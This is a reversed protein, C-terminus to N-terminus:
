ERIWTTLDTCDDSRLKLLQLLNGELDDQGRLALGQRLLYKLSSIQKLLMQQRAKQEAMAQKNMLGHVSEQKSLEIKLVAEKHTDSLSHTNFRERAKKWNDFGAIIFADDGKKLYDRYIRKLAIAVSQM